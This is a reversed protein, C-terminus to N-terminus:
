GPYKQEIAGMLATVSPTPNTCNIANSTIFADCSGDNSNLDGRGWENVPTATTMPRKAKAHGDAYVICMTGLHGAFGRGALGTAWGSYISTNNYGDAGGDVIAVRTSVEQVQAIKVPLWGGPSNYLNYNILYSVPM